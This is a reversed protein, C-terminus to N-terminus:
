NYERIYNIEITLTTFNLNMVGELNIFEAMSSGLEIAFSIFLLSFLM